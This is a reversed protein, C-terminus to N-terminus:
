INFIKRIEGNESRASNSSRTSISVGDMEKDSAVTLGSPQRIMIMVDCKPTDLLVKSKRLDKRSSNTHAKARKMQSRDLDTEEFDSIISKASKVSKFTPSKTIASIQSEPSNGSAANFVKLRNRNEECEKYAQKIRLSEESGYYIRNNVFKKFFKILIISIIFVIGVALMITCNNMEHEHRHHQHYSSSSMEYAHHSKLHSARDIPWSNHKHEANSNKVKLFQHRRQRLVKTFTANKISLTYNKNEPIKIKMEQNKCNM